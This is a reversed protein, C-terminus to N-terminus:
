YYRRTRYNGFGFPSVATSSNVTNGKDDRTRAEAWGKIFERRHYAVKNAAGMWARGNMAQLRAIAGHSIPDVWDDFLFDPGATSAKTPKLVAWLQYEYIDDPTPIFRISQPTNQLFYRPHDNSQQERFRDLHNHPIMPLPRWSSSGGEVEQVKHLAIMDADVPLILDPTPVDAAAGFTYDQQAAVTSLNNLQLRYVRSNNCFEIAALQIAKEAQSIPCGAVDPMVNFLYDEWNVM